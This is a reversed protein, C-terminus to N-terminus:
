KCSNARQPLALKLQQILADQGFFTLVQSRLWEPDCRRDGEGTNQWQQQLKLIEICTQAIAEVDRHPVRWGLRGEQLPEASGDADGALVPIGCAMAELYVIGFGEQSPMVYLNALRYHDALQETPVFGAFIVRDSVGMAEALQALRPQDDGRGVVLYRVEPFRQAIAPLAQITVDVGKYPDGSWLRAVTLLTKAHTLGYKEILEPLRANPTFRNGDVICPICRFKQPELQNSQCARDRTYRSPALIQSAQQLARQQLRPLPLWVEKGYVFVTYPIQWIGAYLSVLPALNIHGCYLHQPRHHWLHLCLAIALRLRGWTPITTKFYRFSLGSNTFPNTEPSDRLLFVTASQQLVLYARLFDQIQSQIGGEQSFIELFVFVPIHKSMLLVM